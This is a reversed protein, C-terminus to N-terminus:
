EKKKRWAEREAMEISLCKELKCTYLPGRKLFERLKRVECQLPCVGRGYGGGQTAKCGRM